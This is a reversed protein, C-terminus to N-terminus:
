RNLVFALAIMIGFCLVALLLIRRLDAYVYSYNFEVESLRAVAAANSVRRKPASPVNIMLGSDSEPVQTEIPAPAVRTRSQGAERRAAAREKQSRTKQPM